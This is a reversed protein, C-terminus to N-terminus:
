GIPTRSGVSQVKPESAGRCAGRSGVSRPLQAPFGHNRGSLAISGSSISFGMWMGGRGRQTGLGGSAWAFYLALNAVVGVVAATVGVLAGALTRNGRLREIYPAGLFICLFSPVFRVWTVLLSATM